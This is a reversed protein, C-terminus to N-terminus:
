QRIVPQCFCVVNRVKDKDRQANNKGEINIERKEKKEQKTKQFGLPNDSSHVGFPFYSHYCLSSGHQLCVENNM